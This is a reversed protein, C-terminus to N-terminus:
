KSSRRHRFMKGLRSCKSYNGLPEAVSKQRLQNLPQHGVMQLALLSNWLAVVYDVLGFDLARRLAVARDLVAVVHVKDVKQAIM